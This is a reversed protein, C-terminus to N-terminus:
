VDALSFAYFDGLFAFGSGGLSLYRVFHAKLGKVRKTVADAGFFFMVMTDCLLLAGKHFCQFNFVFFCLM